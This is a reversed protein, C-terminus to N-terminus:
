NKENSLKGECYPLVPVIKEVGICAKNSFFKNELLPARDHGGVEEANVIRLNKLM